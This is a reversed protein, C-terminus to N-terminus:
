NQISPKSFVKAIFHQYPWKPWVDIKTLCLWQKATVWLPIISRLQFDTNEMLVRKTSLLHCEASCWIRTCIDTLLVADNNLWLVGGFQKLSLKCKERNWIIEREIFMDPFLRNEIEVQTLRKVQSKQLIAAQSTTKTSVHYSIGLFTNISFFNSLKCGMSMWHIRGSSSRLHWLVM